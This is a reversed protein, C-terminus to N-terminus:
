WRAEDCQRLFRHIGELGEYAADESPAALSEFGSGGIRDGYLSLQPSFAEDKHQGPFSVDDFDHDYDYERELGSDTPSRLTSNANSDSSSDMMGRWSIEERTLDRETPKHLNHAPLDHFMDQVREGEGLESGRYRAPTDVPAFPFLLAMDAGVDKEFAEDQGIIGRVVGVEACLREVTDADCGPFSVRLTTSTPLSLPLDGLASLRNLDTLIASLDKLTRAFDVSLMNLLGEANLTAQTQEEVSESGTAIKAVRGLPSLATIAPSVRFDVFSGPANQYQARVARMKRLSEDQVQGIAKFRKEGSRKDIGDFRARGGQVWFARVAASVNSIVEATQAPSHSFHRVGGVRGAGLSYGGATRSIAGGTLNPRLTSAFPARTTLRSVATGVASAPFEARRAGSSGVNKTGSTLNAFGRHQIQAQHVARRGTSFWRSQSQKLAAFRHIPHRSENNRIPIRIPIQELNRGNAAADIKNSVAEARERLNRLALRNNRM